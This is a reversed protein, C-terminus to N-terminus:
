CPKRPGLTLRLRLLTLANEKGSMYVTSERQRRTNEKSPKQVEKPRLEMMESGIGDGMKSSENGHALVEQTTSWMPTEKLVYEGTM